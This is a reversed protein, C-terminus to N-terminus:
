SPWFNSGPSDAKLGGDASPGAGGSGEGCVGRTEQSLHGEAGEARAAPPEVGHAVAWCLRGLDKNHSRLTDALHQIGDLGCTALLVTLGPADM